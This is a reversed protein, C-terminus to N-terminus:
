RLQAWDHIIDIKDLGLLLEKIKELNNKQRNPKSFYDYDVICCYENYNKDILYIKQLVPLKPGKFYKKDVMPRGTDPSISKINKWNFYKEKIKIGTTYIEFQNHTKKIFKLLIERFIPFIFIDLIIIPVILGLIVFLIQENILLLLIM